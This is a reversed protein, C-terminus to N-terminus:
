TCIDIRRAFAALRHLLRLQQPRHLEGAAHVAFVELAAVSDHLEAAAIAIAKELPPPNRVLEILEARNARLAERDGESLQSLPRVLLKGGATRVSFGRAQLDALTAAATPSLTSYM